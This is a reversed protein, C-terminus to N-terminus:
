LVYFVVSEYFVYANKFTLLATFDSAFCSAVFGFVESSEIRKVSVTRQKEGENHIM